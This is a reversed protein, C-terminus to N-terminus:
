LTLGQYSIRGRETLRKPLKGAKVEKGRVGRGQLEKTTKDRLKKACVPNCTRKSYHSTSFKDECIVCIKVTEKKRQYTGKPKRRKNAEDKLEDKRDSRCKDSCCSTNGHPTEFRDGCMICIKSKIAKSPTIVM